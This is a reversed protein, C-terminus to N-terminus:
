CRRLVVWAFSQVAGGPTRHAEREERELRVIPPARDREAEANLAAAVSAGDFRSVELGSCRTPGDPAFGAIIATGGPRLLRALHRAYAAQAGPSALFHFAARDHWADAWGPEIDRFSPSPEADVLPAGLDAARLHVRSRLSAGDPRAELRRRTRDLAAQSIDIVCVETGPEDLLRDVLFSSGGGADVIRRAALGRLLALSRVPEEQHWSVQTPDKERHVREWHDRLSGSM